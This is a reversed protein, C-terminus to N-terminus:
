DSFAEDPVIIEESDCVHEQVLVEGNEIYITYPITDVETYVSVSDGTIVVDEEKILSTDINYEKIIDSESLTVMVDNFNHEQVSEYSSYSDGKFMNFVFISVGLLIIAILVILTKKNM